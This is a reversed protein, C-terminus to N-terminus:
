WRNISSKETPVANKKIINDDYGQNKLWDTLLTKEINSNNAREQWNSLYTYGLVDQFFHIVRGQTNIEREGVTNM